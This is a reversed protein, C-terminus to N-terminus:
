AASLQKKVTRWVWTLLQALAYCAAMSIVTCFLYLPLLRAYPAEPFKTQLFSGLAGNSLYLLLSLKGAHDCWKGYPIHATYSIGLLSIATGVMLLLMVRFDWDAERPRYMLAIALLYCAAEAATLLTRQRRNWEKAMLRESLAYVTCGICMGMIGRLLAAPYIVLELYGWQVNLWGGILVAAIPAVLGTFTDKYRRCLPYLIVTGLFLSSLYWSPGNLYGFYLGGSGVLTVEFVANTLKEFMRKWSLSHEIGYLVWRVLAEAGALCQDQVRYKPQLYVEFENNKLAKEMLSEVQQEKARADWMRNDFLVPATAASIRAADRAVTAFGYMRDVPQSRDNVVYVGTTCRIKEDPYLKSVGRMLGSVRVLPDEQPSFILLLSFEDTAKRAVLEHRTRNKELDHVIKALLAEGAAQGHVQSFVRFRNIDLCVFAIIKGNCCSQKLRKEAEQRFYLFNNGGTIPDFQLAQFIRRNHIARSIGSFLSFLLPICVLLIVALFLIFFQQLALANFVLPRRTVCRWGVAPLEAEFWADVSLQPAQASVSAHDSFLGEDLFDLFLQFLQSRQGYFLRFSSIPNSDAYLLGSEDLEEYRFSAGDVGTGAILADDENLIAVAGTAPLLRAVSSLVATANKDALYLIGGSSQQQLPVAFVLANGDSVTVYSVCSGGALAESFFPQNKVDTIFGKASYANGYPDVVGVDLNDHELASLSQLLNMVDSSSDAAESTTAYCSQFVVDAYTQANHLKKLIAEDLAAAYSDMDTRAAYLRQSISTHVFYSLGCLAVVVLVILLILSKVM